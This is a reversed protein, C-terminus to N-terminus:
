GEMRAGCHCYPQKEGVFTRGCVSCRWMDGRYEGKGYEDKLWKGVREEVFKVASCPMGDCQCCGQEGYDPCHEKKLEAQVVDPFKFCVWVEKM